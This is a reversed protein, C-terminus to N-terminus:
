AQAFLNRPPPMCSGEAPPELRGAANPRDPGVCAPPAPVTNGAPPPSMPVGFGTRTTRDSRSRSPARRVLQRGLAALAAALAALLLIATTGRRHLEAGSGRGNPKKCGMCNAPCFGLPVRHVVADGEAARVRAGHQVPQRRVQDGAQELGLLRLLSRRRRDVAQQEVPGPHAHWVVAERAQGPRDDARLRGLDCLGRRGRDRLLGAGDRLGGRGQSRSGGLRGGDRVVRGRSRGLQRREAVPM